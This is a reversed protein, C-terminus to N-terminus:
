EPRMHQTPKRVFNRSVELPTMILMRIACQKMSIEIKTRFLGPKQPQKQLCLMEKFFAYALLLYM